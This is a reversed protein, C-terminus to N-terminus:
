SAGSISTDVSSGHVSQLLARIDDPVDGFAADSVLTNVWDSFSPYTATSTFPTNERSPKRSVRLDALDTPLIARRATETRLSLTTESHRAKLYARLATRLMKLPIQRAKEEIEVRRTMRRCGLVDHVLRSLIKAPLLALVADRSLYPSPAADRYHQVELRGRCAVIEKMGVHPPLTSIAANMHKSAVVAYVFDCVESYTSVQGALRSLRDKSTKIEFAAMTGNVTVIDARRSWRSVVLESIVAAGRLSGSSRLHNLLAAKAAAESPDVRM